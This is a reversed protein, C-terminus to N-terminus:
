KTAVVILQEAQDTYPTGKWDAYISVNSFGVKLCLSRFEKATYLRVSYPTLPERSGTTRVLCWEGDERKTKKNYRRYLELKNGSKLTRIQHNKLEGAVLRPVTVHTHMLFRGGIVLSKYFEKAVRENEEDTKFFGFSYFMNIVADFKQNFNLTRMDKKIFRCNKIGSDMLNSNSIALFDKNIDAGTVNMGNQALAISHRGYGSPCDLVIDDKKLDCLRIIGKIEERTRLWLKKPSNLHGECSDDAEMYLDGFFGGDNEWWERVGRKRGHNKLINM